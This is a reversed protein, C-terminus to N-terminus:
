KCDAMLLVHENPTSEKLYKIAKDFVQGHVHLLLHIAKGVPLDSTSEKIAEELEKLPQNKNEKEKYLLGNRELISPQDENELSLLSM